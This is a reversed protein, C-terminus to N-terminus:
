DTMLETSQPTSIHANSTANTTHQRHHTPQHTPEPTHRHTRANITTHQDATYHNHHAPQANIRTRTSTATHQNHTSAHARTPQPTYDLVLLLVPKVSLLDKNSETVANQHGPLQMAQPYVIISQDEVGLRLGCLESSVV